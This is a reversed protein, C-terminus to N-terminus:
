LLEAGELRTKESLLLQVQWDPIGGSKSRDLEQCAEQFMVPDHEREARALRQLANSAMSGKFDGCIDGFTQLDGEFVIWDGNTAGLHALTANVVHDRTTFQLLESRSTEPIITDQYLAFAGAFQSTQCLLEAQRVTAQLNRGDGEVKYLESAERYLEIARKPDTPKVLDGLQSYLKAARTGGRENSKFLRAARELRKSMNYSKFADEYASAADFINITTAGKEYLKAADTYAKAAGLYDRKLKAQSATQKFAEAQAEYGQGGQVGQGGGPASGPTVTQLESIVWWSQFAGLYQGSGDNLSAIQFFYYDTITHQPVRVGGSLPDLINRTFWGVVGRNQRDSSAAPVPTSASVSGEVRAIYFPRFTEQSPKTQVAVFASLVLFVLALM